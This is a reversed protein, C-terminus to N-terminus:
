PKWQEVRKAEDRLGHAWADQAENMFQEFTWNEIRAEEVAEWIKDEAQSPTTVSLLPSGGVGLGLRIGNPKM